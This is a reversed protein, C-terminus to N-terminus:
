LLIELLHYNLKESTLHISQRFYEEHIDIALKKFDKIPNPFDGHSSDCEIDFSLTIIKSLDESYISTINYETLNDIQIDCHFIKEKDDVILKEYKSLGIWGSSNINKEHLFRLLPHINSEYLNAKCECNHEQLFWDKLKPQVKKENNKIKSLNENYYNTIQRVCKQLDNYARFSLKAFRYQKIKKCYPDYNFGYFNQSQIIEINKDYNRIKIIKELFDKIYSITWNNPIRLYFYPKYNKINCIINLNDKTKGYFTLIFQKDWKNEDNFSIDDSQIDIIQFRPNKIFENNNM